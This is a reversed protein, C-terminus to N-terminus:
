QVQTYGQKLARQLYAKPIKGVTGAPNKVQVQADYKPVVAGQPVLGQLTQPQDAATDIVNHLHQNLEEYTSRGTFYNGILPSVMKEIAEPAFRKSPASALVLPVMEAVAGNIKQTSQIPSLVRSKTTQLQQLRSSLADTAEHAAKTKDAVDLDKNAQEYQQQNILGGRLLLNLRTAPDLNSVGAQGPQGQGLQDLVSQRIVGPLYQQKLAGQANLAAAKAMPSGSKAAAQNIQMSLTNARIAKFMEEAAMRSGYQEQLASLVNHKVNINDRQSQLDREIQNNLFTLAPNPQGTQGSSIGGLLLGIATGIRGVANKSDLYHNPDIHGELMDQTVKNITQSKASLDSQLRKLATQDQGAAQGYLGSETDAQQAQAEGQQGAATSQEEYGPVADFPNSDQPVQPAVPAPQDQATDTQAEPAQEPLAETAAEAGGMAGATAANTDPVEDQPDAQHLPLKSLQKIHEPKLSSKVLHIRHGGDGKLVAENDDESVKKFTKFDIM